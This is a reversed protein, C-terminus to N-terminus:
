TRAVRGSPLGGAKWWADMGGVANTVSRFGARRLVSAAISSRYGGACVVTWPVGPDIEPGIEFAAIKLTSVVAGSTEGGAVILRRVGRALLGRATAAFFAEVAESM